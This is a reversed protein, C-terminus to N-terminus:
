FLLRKYEKLKWTKQQLFSIIVINAEYSWPCKIGKACHGGCLLYKKINVITILYCTNKSSSLIIKQEDPIWISSHM